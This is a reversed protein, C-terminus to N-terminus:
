HKRMSNAYGWPTRYDPKSMRRPEVSSDRSGSGPMGLGGPSSDSTNGTSAAPTPMQLPPVSATRQSKKLINATAALLAAEEDEANKAQQHEQQQRKQSELDSAKWTRYLADPDNDDDKGSALTRSRAPLDSRDTRTSTVPSEPQTRSQPSTGLPSSYVDRFRHTASDKSLDMRERQQAMPEVVQDPSSQSSTRRMDTAVNAAVSLDDGRPYRHNDFGRNKISQSSSHAPSGINRGRKNYNPSPSTEQERFVRKKKAATKARGQPEPSSEASDWGGDDGEWDTKLLGSPRRKGAEGRLRSHHVTAPFVGPKPRPPSDHSQSHQARNRLERELYAGAPSSTASSSQRKRSRIRQSNRRLPQSTRAFQLDMKMPEVLCRLKQCNQYLDERIFVEWRDSAYGIAEAINPGANYGQHYAFPFTIVMEGQHQIVSTYEIGLLSLVETPVYLSSHRLFQSCQPPRRAKLDTRSSLMREQPNLFNFLMEELKAHHKPAVVRWCKPAGCHLYNLSYAAFDEIHMGFPTGETRSVYFYPTHVGRIRTKSKM